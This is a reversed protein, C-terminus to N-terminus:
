DDLSAEPGEGEAADGASFPAYKDKAPLMDGAPESYSLAVFENDVFHITCGSVKVGHALVAEHVHHGYFGKGCFAPVLAPHVNMVRVQFDSPIRLLQLFGGLCVLGAKADLMAQDVEEHAVGLAFRSRQRQQRM